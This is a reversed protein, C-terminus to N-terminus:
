SRRSPRATSCRRRPDRRRGRGGDERRGRPAVPLDARPRHRHGGRPAPEAGRLPLGQRGERHARERHRQLRHLAPLSRLRRDGRGEQRLAQRSRDRDHARRVVAPQRRHRRPDHRARRDDREDPVNSSSWCTRTARPAGRARLGLRGLQRARPRPRARRARRPRLRRREVDAVIETSHKGDMMRPEFELGAEACRQQMPVLYGDSILKLGMTILSDHIKRQRELETEELYEEPLTYEMQKFRYDHMKAAYVHCGVMKSQFAKGLDVAVNIAQNSYDSNDVPVYITKYMPEELRRESAARREAQPPPGLRRLRARARARRAGVGGDARRAVAERRARLLDVVLHHARAQQRARPERRGLGLIRDARIRGGRVLARRRQAHPAQLRGAVRGQRLPQRGHPRAPRAGRPQRQRPRRLADATKKALDAFWLHSRITRTASSSTRSASRRDPADGPVPDRGRRLVGVEAGRAAAARRRDDGWLGESSDSARRRSRPAPATQGGRRGVGGGDDARSGAERGRRRGRGRTAPVAIEPGNKGTATAACTTGASSSPSRRHRQLRRAGHARDVGPPVRPRAAHDPRRDPLLRRRRRRLAQRGQRSRDGRQTKKATLLSSYNPTESAASRISSTPRSGLAARGILAEGFAPMPTGNLGTTIARFIDERTPAAASRGATAHSRRSPDSPRFRGEVDAGHHRRHARARRPLAACGLEAYLQKGQEISENSLAPPTPIKM